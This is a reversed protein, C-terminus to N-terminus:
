PTALLSALPVFGAEHEEGAGEVVLSGVEPVAEYIADEITQRAAAGSGPRAAIYRIRISEPSAELVEVGAGRSDFFTQLRDMARAFRTTFDDPHLGHLVLVRAVLEDAAIKSAAEPAVELIRELASAHLSMVAQVLDIALARAAPDRLMEVQQVLEDIKETM